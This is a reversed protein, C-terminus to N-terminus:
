AALGKGLKICDACADACAKCEVHKKEHKRCEKECEAWVDLALKTLKGTFPAGQAGLKQVAGCIALMQNVSKACEAMPKDGDGLLVLCHALCADGKVVCDGAAAGLAAFKNAAHGHHHTHDHQQAAAPTAVGAMALAGIAGLMERREM